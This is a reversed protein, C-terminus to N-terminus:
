CYKTYFVNSWWTLIWQGLCYFIKNERCVKNEMWWFRDFNWYTFLIEKHTVNCVWFAHKSIGQVETSHESFIGIILATHCISHNKKSINWICSSVVLPENIGSGTANVSRPCKYPLILDWKVKVRVVSFGKPQGALSQILPMKVQICLHKV